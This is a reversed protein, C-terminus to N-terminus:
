ASRCAVFSSVVGIPSCVLVWVGTV